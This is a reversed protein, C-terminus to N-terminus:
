VNKFFVPIDQQYARKFGVNMQKSLSNQWDNRNGCGAAIKVQMGTLIEYPECAMHEYAFQARKIEYTEACVIMIDDISDASDAAALMDFGSSRM